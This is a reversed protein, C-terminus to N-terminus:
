TDAKVHSWSRGHKIDAIISKSVKYKRGLSRGSEGNALAIKIERVQAETLKAAPNKEGAQVGKKAINIKQRKEPSMNRQAESMRRRSEATVPHGMRAESIKKRHEEPMPKGFKGSKGGVQFNFGFEPNDAKYHAILFIEKADLETQNEASDIEDWQFNSFGEDLLATQFASRKDGKLARFKHYSKRRLLSRVTQGIYVKGSPSTAKYIIGYVDKGGKEM